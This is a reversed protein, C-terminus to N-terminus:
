GRTHVFRGRGSPGEPLFSGTCGAKTLASEMEARPFLTNVFTNVFYKPETDGDAVICHVQMRTENGERSGYSVRAITYGDEQVVDGVVSGPTFTEPFWWPEIILVGGPTVHAAMRAVAADLEETTRMHSISAFLCTVADYTRGLDFDRMDGLHWPVEPSQSKAVALMDESLEVGAVDPFHDALHRVHAGTGCAIDVVSTADPRREKILAALEAAEAQYDKGRGKYVSDYIKAYKGDFAPRPDHM